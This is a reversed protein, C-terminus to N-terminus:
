AAIRAVDPAANDSAPALERYGEGFFAEVFALHQVDVYDGRQGELVTNAGAWRLLLAQLASTMDTPAMAAM